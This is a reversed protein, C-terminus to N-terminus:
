PLGQACLSFGTSVLHQAANRSSEVAPRGGDQAPASRTVSALGLLLALTLYRRRLLRRITAGLLALVIAPPLPLWVDARDYAYPGHERTIVIVAPLGLTAWVGWRWAARPTLMGLAFCGITLMLLLPSRSGSHLDVIATVCGLTVALATSGPDAIRGRCANLAATRLLVLTGAIAFRLRATPGDVATVEAALAEGWERHAPPLVAAAQGILWLALRDIAAAGRTVTTM